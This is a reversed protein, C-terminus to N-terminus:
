LYYFQIKCSAANGLIDLYDGAQVTYHGQGPNV